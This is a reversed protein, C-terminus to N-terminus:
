LTRSSYNSSIISDANGTSPTLTAEGIVTAQAPTIVLLTSAFLASALVVVAGRASRKM